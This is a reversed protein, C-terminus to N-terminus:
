QSQRKSKTPTGWICKSFMNARGTPHSPGSGGELRPPLGIEFCMFIKSSVFIYDHTKVPGSVLISQTPSPRATLFTAEYEPPEPNSAGMLSRKDQSLRKEIKM